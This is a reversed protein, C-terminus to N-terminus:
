GIKMKSKRARNSFRHAEDRTQLLIDKITETLIKTSSKTKAPFVLRDGQFKSIGVMPTAVQLRSLLKYIHDV